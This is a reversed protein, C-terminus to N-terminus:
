LKMQIKVGHFVSNAKGDNGTEQEEGTGHLFFQIGRSIVNFPKM